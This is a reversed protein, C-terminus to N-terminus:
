QQIRAVCCHSSCLFAARSECLVVEAAARPIHQLWVGGEEEEHGRSHRFHGKSPESATSQVCLAGALYSVACCNRLCTLVSCTRPVMAFARISTVVPSGSHGSSPERSARCLFLVQLPPFVHDVEQFHCTSATHLHRATYALSWVSQM